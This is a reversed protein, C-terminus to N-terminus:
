GGLLVDSIIDEFDDFNVAIADNSALEPLVDEPPPREGSSSEGQRREGSFNVSSVYVETVTKETGNRGTYKRTRLEGDVVILSGKPFYKAIFEATQRWAVCNIFDTQKDKTNRDVALSFPLVSLGSLTQKVKPTHVIRGMLIVKNLM